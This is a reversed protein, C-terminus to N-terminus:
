FNAYEVSFVSDDNIENRLMHLIVAGKKYSLNSSFLRYEDNASTFPVFVSGEAERLARTQANQMWSEAESKTGLNEYAIYECYSAFGENIWIDQWTSCTTHDGFWQHALEHSVLTYSYNYLTTMTQHEMGGGIPAVCHGYKEEYFPYLGFLKSFLILFDATKDIEPKYIELYGPRNYVYNQFLLSDTRGPIKIYYSYDKYDAVTFSILYYAIPYKSKWRYQVQKENINVTDTLM